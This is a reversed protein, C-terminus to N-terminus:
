LYSSAQLYAVHPATPSLLVFRGGPDARRSEIVLNSSTMQSDITEIRGIIICEALNFSGGNGDKGRIVFLRRSGLRLQHTSRCLRGAVSTWDTCSGLALRRHKPIITKPMDSQPTLKHM